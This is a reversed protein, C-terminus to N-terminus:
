LGLAAGGSRGVRQLARRSFNPFHTWRPYRRSLRCPPCPFGASHQQGLKGDSEYRSPTRRYRRRISDRQGREYLGGRGRPTPEGCVAFLGVSQRCVLEHEVLGWRRECGQERERERERQDRLDLFWSSRNGWRQLLSKGPVFLPSKSRPATKLEPVSVFQVIGPGQSPPSVRPPPTVTTTLSPAGFIYAFDRNTIKM